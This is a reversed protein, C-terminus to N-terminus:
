IKIAKRVQALTGAAVTRAREAGTKLVEKIRNDRLWYERKAQFPALFDSLVRALRVKCETCGLRGNRCWDEVEGIRDGSFLRHYNFVNCDEPHGPDKLRIRRTDTIMGRVKERVVEPSDALAIFNNYSKSMKRNDLGLLKASETLLPQPEPFIPYYLGNFRRAIERTLELHPVQDRGVPVATAKYILIDAAQLVPYGLFGYTLLNRGKIERLQEKYTPCRELWPLPTLTSFILHLETHERVDSQVFITSQEPDLGVALWDAVCERTYKGILAPDEYESMFAHWDAVMYYCRYEQQLSIWNFLAGFLHGLHIPGTPRM